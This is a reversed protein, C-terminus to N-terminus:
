APKRQIQGGVRMLHRGMLMHCQQFSFSCNWFKPVVDKSFDQAINKALQRHIMLDPPSNVLIKPRIWSYHLCSSSNFTRDPLALETIHAKCWETTQFRSSDFFAFCSWETNSDINTEMRVYPWSHQTIVSLIRDCICADWILNKRFILPTAINSFSQLVAIRSDRSMPEFFTQKSPKAM